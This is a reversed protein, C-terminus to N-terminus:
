NTVMEYQLIKILNNTILRIQVLASDLSVVNLAVRSIEKMSSIEEAVGNEM